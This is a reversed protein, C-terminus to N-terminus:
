LATLLESADLKFNWLGACTEIIKDILSLAKLRIPQTIIRYNKMGGIAHEVPIRIQAIRKNLAKKLEKVSEPSTKRKKLPILVQAAQYDKELGQYGLDLWLIQKEFWGQTPDFEEKFLAYDHRHGWTTKGIYLIRKSSNSM